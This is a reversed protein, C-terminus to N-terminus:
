YRKKGSRSFGKDARPGHNRPPGAPRDSDLRVNQIIKGDELVTFHTQATRALEAFFTKGSSRPFTYTATQIGYRDMEDLAKQAMREAESQTKAYNNSIQLYAQNIAKSFPEFADQVANVTVSVVRGMETFLDNFVDDLTPSTDPGPWPEEFQEGPRM